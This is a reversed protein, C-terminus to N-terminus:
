AAAELRLLPQFGMRSTRMLEVRRLGGKIVRVPDLPLREVGVPDSAVEGITLESPAEFGPERIVDACAM